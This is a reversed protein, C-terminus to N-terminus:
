DPEHEPLGTARSVGADGKLDIDVEDIRGAYKFPM